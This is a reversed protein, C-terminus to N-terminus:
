LHTEKPEAAGEGEYLVGGTLSSPAAEADGGASRPEEAQQRPSAMGRVNATLILNTSVHLNSVATQYTTLTRYIKATMAPLYINTTAM